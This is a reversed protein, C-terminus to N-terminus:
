REKVTRKEGPPVVIVVGSGKWEADKLVPMQSQKFDRRSEEDVKNKTYAFADALRKHTRLGDIFHKTFIGNKYRLSDHAIQNEAASAIVLQGSGQLLEDYSFSQPPFISKAGPEASGSHCTDLVIIIRDANIRRKITRALDQIEIGTAFANTPNTDYAVLFNKRAADQDASTGHSAFYVLVLDGSRANEPLWKSGLVTLINERTANENLLVKVHDAAFNGEKVLFAAFDQADKAPYMLNWRPNKFDSIGVVVAWKDHIPSLGTVVNPALPLTATESKKNQPSRSGNAAFSTSAIKASAAHQLTMELALPKKLDSSVVTVAPEDRFREPKEAKIFQAQRADKLAFEVSCAAAVAQVNYKPTILISRSYKEPAALLRKESLVIKLTESGPKDDFELVGNDPVILDKGAKIRNDADTGPAPYLLASAGSSGKKMLIYIYGDINSQVHFRLQDGSKFPYRSDVLAKLGDRELEISYTLGLNQLKGNKENLQRDYLSKAGEASRAQPSLFILQSLCLALLFGIRHKM